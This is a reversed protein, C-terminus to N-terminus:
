LFMRYSGLLVITGVITIPLTTIVYWVKFGFLLHYVMGLYMNHVYTGKVKPPRPRRRNTASSPPSLSVCVVRCVFVCVCCM